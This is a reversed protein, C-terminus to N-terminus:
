RRMAPTESVLGSGRAMLYVELNLYTDSGLAYPEAEVGIDCAEFRRHASGLSQWDNRYAPFGNVHGQSITDGRMKAGWNKDHCQHCSLNLQGRRTYFYEKGVDFYPQLDETIDYAVTQGRTMSKVYSTLALLDESEYPLPAQEQYDARCLNIRGEINILAGSAEDIKPYVLPAHKFETKPDTHCASCSKDGSSFLAKGKSVWLFGPNSFDDFQDTQTEASMFELGSKLESPDLSFDPEIPAPACASLLFITLWLIRNQM